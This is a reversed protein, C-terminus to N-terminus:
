HYIRRRNQQFFDIPDFTVPKDDDPFDLSMHLEAVDGKDHRSADQFLSPSTVALSYPRARQRELMRRLQEHLQDPPLIQHPPPHALSLLVHQELLHAYDLLLHHPYLNAMSHPQHTDVSLVTSSSSLSGNGLPPMNPRGLVLLAIYFNVLLLLMALPHIGLVGDQARPFAVAILAWALMWLLLTLAAALSLLLVFPGPELWHFRLQSYDAMLRLMVWPPDATPGDTRGIAEFLRSLWGEAPIAGDQLLLGYICGEDALMRLSAAYDLCRQANPPARLLTAPAPLHPPRVIKRTRVLDQLRTAEEHQEAPEAANIVLLRLRDEWEKPTRSVLAGVTMELEREMGTPYSQVAVCLQPRHVRRDHFLPGGASGRWARLDSLAQLSTSRLNFLRREREGADISYYLSYPLKRAILYLLGQTLLVSALVLVAQRWAHNMAEQAPRGLPGAGNSARRNTVAQQRGIM